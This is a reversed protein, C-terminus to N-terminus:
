DLRGATAKRRVIVRDGEITFHELFGIGVLEDLAARCHRKFGAPQANKSGTIRQLFALTV